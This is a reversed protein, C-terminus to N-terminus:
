HICIHVRLQYWHLAFSSHCFELHNSIFVSIGFFTTTDITPTRATTLNAGDHPTHSRLLEITQHLLTYPPHSTADHPHVGNNAGNSIRAVTATKTGDCFSSHCAM